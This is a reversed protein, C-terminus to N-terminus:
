MISVHLNTISLVECAIYPHFLCPSCTLASLALYTSPFGNDLTDLAGIDELTPGGSAIFRNSNTGVRAFSGCPVIEDTDINFYSIPDEYERVLVSTPTSCPMGTRATVNDIQCAESRVTVEKGESVKVVKMAYVYINDLKASPPLRDICKWVEFEGEFPQVVCM